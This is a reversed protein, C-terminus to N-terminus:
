YLNDDFDDFPMEESFEDNNDFLDYLHLEDDSFTVVFEPNKMKFAELEQPTDFYMTNELEGDENYILYTNNNTM